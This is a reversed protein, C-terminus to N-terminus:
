TIKSWSSTSCWCAALRASQGKYALDQPIWFRTREGEVMLQVGETWGPIVDDLRM